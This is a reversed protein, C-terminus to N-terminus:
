LAEKPVSQSYKRPNKVWSYVISGCFACMIHHVEEQNELFGPAGYMRTDGSFYGYRLDDSGCYPCEPIEVVGIKM